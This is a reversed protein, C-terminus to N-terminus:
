NKTCFSFGKRNPLTSWNSSSRFIFRKSWLCLLVALKNVLFGDGLFDVLWELMSSSIFSSSSLLPLKSVFGFLGWLFSFSNLLDNIFPTMSDGLYGCAWGLLFTDKNPLKKWRSFFPPVFPVPFVSDIEFEALLRNCFYVGLELAPASVPLAVSLRSTGSSSM